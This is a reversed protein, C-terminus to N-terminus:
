DIAGVMLALSHSEPQILVLETFDRLVFGFDHLSEKGLDRLRYRFASRSILPYVGRDVEALVEASPNGYKGFRCPEWV